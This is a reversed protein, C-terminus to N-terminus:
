EQIGWSNNRGLGWSDVRLDTMEIAMTETSELERRLCASRGTTTFLCQLQSGRITQILEELYPETDRDGLWQFGDIVCLITGPMLALLDRFLNLMQSWCLISGDISRLRSSSFDTASDFKPLLLEIMQRLLACLLSVCSQAERTDNGPRLREGRRIECCYSLVPINSQESLDMVKNALMTIPNDIDDAEIPPGELWLLHSSKDKMWESLRRLSEPNIKTPNFYDGGVRVRDRHFFDELHKSNLIIEELIWETSSPSNARSPSAFGQFQQPSALLQVFPFGPPLDGNTSRMDGIWVMAKDQLMSTLRDALQKFQQGDERLLQREKRGESLEREIKEAMYVMEAHRREDGTLGLRVDRALEEVNLRTVRQEAHSSQNALNRIMDSKRRITEIQNEFKKYFNENFSDLLRKRRKETIWDMTDSLFVFVHAYFDAVLEMMAKTRFLQLESRCELIYESIHCLAESLGEAIREHNVSARIIVNLTGAFISVYESGEPILELMSKHSDVTGCFKHFMNMAKGRRSNDRKAKSTAAIEQVLEVVGQMTPESRGIDLRDESSSNRLFPAWKERLKNSEVTIVKTIPDQESAPAEWSEFFIRWPNMLDRSDSQGQSLVHGLVQNNHGYPLRGEVDGSYMRVLRRSERVDDTSTAM